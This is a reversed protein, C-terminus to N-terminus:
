RGRRQGRKLIFLLGGGVISWLLWPSMSSTATADVATNSATEEIPLSSGSGSSPVEIISSGGSAPALTSVATPPAVNTATTPISETRIPAPPVPTNVVTTPTSTAPTSITPTSAVPAVPKPPWIVPSGQPVFIGNKGGPKLYGVYVGNQYVEYWGKGTPNTTIGGQPLYTNGVLQVPIGDENIKEDIAGLYM